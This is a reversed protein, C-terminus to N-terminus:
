RRWKIFFAAKLAITESFGEQFSFNSDINQMPHISYTDSYAVLGIYSATFKIGFIGRDNTNFDLGTHFQLTPVIHFTSQDTRSNYFSLNRSPNETDRYNTSFYIKDISFLTVGMGFGIFLITEQSFINGLENYVNGVFTNTKIDSIDLVTDSQVTTQPDTDSNSLYMTGERNYKM